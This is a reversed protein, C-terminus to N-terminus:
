AKEVFSDMVCKMGGTDFDIDLKNGSVNVVKGYGFKDHFVREHRQFKISNENVRRTSVTRGGSFGSSDWHQSRGAQYLGTDASASVHAEPLEDVFRSPIASNWNGYLRRNAAYSVFARKRARTLGVYALRREEELGKVGNEDMTRQSPFLGDEWGPLFVADFELGKASHLTMLSVFEGSSNDQNELVLAVHELFEALSEYEQMGSILEKLNEIRGPAEPTKDAKWMAMYGSEDLV